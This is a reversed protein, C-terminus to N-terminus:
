VHVVAIGLPIAWHQVLNHCNLNRDRRAKPMGVGQRLYSQLTVRRVLNGTVSDLFALLWDLPVALQSVWRCGPPADGQAGDALVAYLMHVFPRWVWLLSAISQAKGTFTRLLKVGVVNSSYRIGHAMSRFEDIRAATITAEIGEPIVAFTAGIWDAVPGFQGKKIALTIGVCHGFGKGVAGLGAFELPTSIRRHQFSSALPDSGPHSLANPGVSAMALIFTAVQKRCVAQTGRIALAPDDVYAQMRQADPIVPCRLTSFSCRCILGFIVARSM